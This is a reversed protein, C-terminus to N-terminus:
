KFPEPEGAPRNGGFRYVLSIRGTHFSPKNDFTLGDADLLKEAFGHTYRYEGKLYFNGSLQTEAGAGFFIADYSPFSYSTTQGNVTLKLDDFHVYSYGITGYWLTCCNRVLGLRAGASFTYDNKLQASFNDVGDTANFTTKINGVDFEIFGGILINRRLMTDAGLQFSAFIGEGGLGNFSAIENTADRLILEHVVAGAGFGVAGYIGRWNANCCSEEAAVPMDKLSMEDAGDAMLGGAHASGASLMLTAGAVIAMLNKNM